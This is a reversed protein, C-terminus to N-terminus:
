TRSYDNSPSYRLDCVTIVVFLGGTELHGNENPNFLKEFTEILLFGTKKEYTTVNLATLFLGLPASM